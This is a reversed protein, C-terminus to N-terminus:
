EQIQQKLSSLELNVESEVVPKETGLEHDLESLLDDEQPGDDDSVLVSYTLLEHNVVIINCANSMCKRRRISAFVM